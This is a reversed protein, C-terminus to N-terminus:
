AVAVGELDQGGLRGGTAWGGSGADLGAGSALGVALCSAGGPWGRGGPELELLCGDDGELELDQAGPRGGGVRGGPRPM